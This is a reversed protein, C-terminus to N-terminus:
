KGAAPPDGRAQIGVVCMRNLPDPPFQRYGCVSVSTGVSKATSTSPESHNSWSKICEEADGGTGDQDVTRTVARGGSRATPDDGSAQKGASASTARIQQIKGCGLCDSVCKDSIRGIQMM